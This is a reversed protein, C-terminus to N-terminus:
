INDPVPECVCLKQKMASFVSIWLPATIQQPHSGMGVQSCFECCVTRMTSHQGSDKEPGLCKYGTKPTHSVTSKRVVLCLLSVDQGFGETPTALM